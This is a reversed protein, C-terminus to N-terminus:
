KKMTYKIAADKAADFTTVNVVGYTPTHYIPTEVSFQQFYVYQSTININSYNGNAVVEPNSGDLAMRMLAPSDSDNKQYYIYSDCMNYSDVRDTTLAYVEGTSIEFRCLRYNNALDIFYVYGNQIIPFWLNEDLLKTSTLSNCDLAYLAHDEVTGNYYITSNAASSPNILYDSVQELKTKDTDIKYLYLAKAGNVMQQYFLSNDVLTVNQITNKSLCVAHKGNKESRYLGNVKLAFGKGLAAASNVQYYYLYDGGANIYQVKANVIKKVNEENVDMQYMTYGDYANAFYIKGDSECYLGFNNLNGATNGVTGVPNQPVKNSFYTMVLFLVIVCFVICGAIIWKIKKSM